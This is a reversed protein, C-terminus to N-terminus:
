INRSPTQFNRRPVCRQRAGCGGRAYYVKIWCGEEVNVEEVEDADERAYYVKIWCGDEKENVDEVEEVENDADERLVSKDLM